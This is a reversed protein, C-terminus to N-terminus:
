GLVKLLVSFIEGIPVQTALVPIFPLLAIVALLLVDEKNVPILSMKHVATVSHGLYTISRFDPMSSENDERVAGEPFWKEEIRQIQRSALAGYRFVAEEKAHYLSRFFFLAPGAILIILFAVLGIVHWQYQLPSDGDYVVFDAIVAAAFATVGFVFPAFAGVSNSLFELGGTGDRHSPNLRLDLRSVKWLLRWWLAIRLLWRWMLFSYLPFAVLFFWGGALSIFAHGDKMPVRWTSDHLEFLLALLAAASHLYALSVLVADTRGSRSVRVTDQVAADFQARSKDMILGADLFQRIVTNLQARCIAEGLLFFPVSVLLRVNIAFDMLFSELRTPGIVLGQAAALPLMPVWTILLLFLVLRGSRKRGDQVLGLKEELRYIPGGDFLAFSAPANSAPPSENPM